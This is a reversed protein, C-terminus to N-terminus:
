ECVELVFATLAVWLLEQCLRGWPWVLADTGPPFDEPSFCLLLGATSSESPSLENQAQYNICGGGIAFSRITCLLPM